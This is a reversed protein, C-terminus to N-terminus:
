RSPTLSRLGERYTPYLLKVGLESKIRTNAIRRSGEYFSRAM